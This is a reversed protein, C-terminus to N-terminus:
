DRGHSAEEIPDRTAVVIEFFADVPIRRVAGFGAHRLMGGLEVGSLLVTTGDALWDLAFAPKLWPVTGAGDVFVDSVVLWGDARLTCRFKELLGDGGDGAMRRLSNHVFIAAAGEALPPLATPLALDVQILHVQRGPEARSILAGFEGAPTGVDHVPGPPLPLHRWAQLAAARASRQMLRLYAERAGADEYWPSPVQGGRAVAVLAAASLSTRALVGELLVLDGAPAAPTGDVPAYVGGPESRVVGMAALAQLLVAAPQPRVGVRAALAAATAPSERLAQLLGLESAALTAASVRHSALSALLPAAGAAPGSGNLRRRDVKGSWGRPLPAHFHWATPQKWRELREDLHRSLQPIRPASGEALEVHAEVRDEGDDDRRGVVVADLVGPYTRIAAEVEAPRITRGGRRLAEGLRGTVQFYGDAGRRAVDGTSFWGDPGVRSADVGEPGLYGLFPIPTRVFLAGASAGGTLAVEVGPLPRGTVGESVPEGVTGLTAGTETSGYNRAPRTGLREGLEDALGQQLAGAGVVVAGAPPVPSRGRLALCLLRAAAPVLPLLAGPNERLAREAARPTWEPLLRLTGGAALTGGLAIGLTFAHFLPLASVIWTDGDMALAHVYREGEELLSGAHRLALRPEGTSGSTPLCLAAGGPLVTPADGGHFPGEALGGRWVVPTGLLECVDRLHADTWDPPVPAVPVGAAHAALFAVVAGRTNEARLVVANGPGWKALRAAESEVEAAAAGYTVVHDAVLFPREPADAAVAYLRAALPSATSM